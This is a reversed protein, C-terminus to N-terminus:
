DIFGRSRNTFLLKIQQGLAPFLLDLDGDREIEGKVDASFNHTQDFLNQVTDWPFLTV